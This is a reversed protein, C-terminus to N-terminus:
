ETKGFVTINYELGYNIKSKLSLTVHDYGVGGETIAVKSGESEDRPTLALVCYIKQDGKWESHTSRSVFQRVPLNIHDEFVIDGLVANSCNGEFLEFDGDLPIGIVFQFSVLVSAVIILTRNM